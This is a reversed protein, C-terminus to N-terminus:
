MGPAKLLQSWRVGFGLVCGEEGLSRAGAFFAHRFAADLGCVGDYRLGM